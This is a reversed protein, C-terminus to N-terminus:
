VLEKAKEMHEQLKAISSKTPELVEEHYFKVVV